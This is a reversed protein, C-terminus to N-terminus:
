KSPCLHVLVPPFSSVSRQRTNKAKTTEVFVANSSSVLVPPHINRWLESPWLFMSSLDPPNDASYCIFYNMLQSFGIVKQSESIAEPKRGVHCRNGPSHLPKKADVPVELQRWEQSIGTAERQEVQCTTDTCWRCSLHSDDKRQQSCVGNSVLWQKYQM